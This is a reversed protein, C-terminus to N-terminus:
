GDLITLDLRRLRETDALIDIEVIRGDRVTFAGVAFPQGDLTTVAGVAGNVLAPRTVLGLRSYTLAQRAVAAAGRVERSRGLPGLDARLVVDPDLVELLADFDGDRAAALFAAAVRRQTDLDADPVSREGRVRRRARSALQRAADPSRGVIPALEDFPVAFMDHLVFALREAPTLTELVVLLALGVSGALLAEHEPDTGDVRDLVPEPLRAGPPEERRRRRSRLMDLAVRGVVTTLWAGLNEVDGADARSLRLWSEQVADDAESLSGLMRYAVSRLRGRHEEFREALWDREDM